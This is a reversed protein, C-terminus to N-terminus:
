SEKDKIEIDIGGHAASLRLMLADFCARSEYVEDDGRRWGVLVCGDTDKASNGPHIRIGEFGPVRDILPLIKGFRPSYTLYVPYRGAPIATVHQIKVSRPPDELTFCFFDHDISLRGIAREGDVDERQLSLLM